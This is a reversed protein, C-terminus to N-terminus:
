CPSRFVRKPSLSRTHTKKIRRSRRSIKIKYRDPRITSTVFFTRSNPAIKVITKVTKRLEHMSWKWVRSACYFSLGVTEKPKEHQVSQSTDKIAEKLEQWTNVYADFVIQKYNGVPLFILPLHTRTHRETPNALGHETTYNKPVYAAYIEEFWFTWNVTKEVSRGGVGFWNAQYYRGRLSHNECTLIACIWMSMSKM